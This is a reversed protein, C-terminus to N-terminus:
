SVPINSYVKFLKNWLLTDVFHFLRETFCGFLLPRPLPAFCEHKERATNKRTDKFKGLDSIGQGWNWKRTAWRCSGELRLTAGLALPQMGLGWSFEAMFEVAGPPKRVISAGCHELPKSAGLSFMQPDGSQPKFSSVEWCWAENLHVHPGCCFYRDWPLYNKIQKNIWQSVHKEKMWSLHKTDMDLVTRFVQSSMTWGPDESPRPIGTTTLPRTPVSELM